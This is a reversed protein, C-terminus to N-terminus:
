QSCVGMFLHCCNHAMLYSRSLCIQEVGVLSRLVVSDTDWGVRQGDGGGWDMSKQFSSDGAVLASM